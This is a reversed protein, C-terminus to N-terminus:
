GGITGAVAGRLADQAEEATLDGVLVRLTLGDAVALLTRAAARPDALGPACRELLRAAEAEADSKSQALVAAVEPDAVGAAVFSYFVSTGVRTGEAAPLAHALLNWLEEAPGAGAVAGAHAAEAVAVMEALSARVLDDKSAFYHQVRGASVGAEAAVSRVSVGAIGRRAVVAWVARLIEGRKTAHDGRTAM